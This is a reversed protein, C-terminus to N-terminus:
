PHFVLNIVPPIAGSNDLPFKEVRLMARRIAAEWAPSGIVKTIKFSNVTGDPRTIVEVEVESESSVLKPDVFIQYKVTDAIRKSYPVSKDYFSPPQWSSSSAQAFVATSCAMLM